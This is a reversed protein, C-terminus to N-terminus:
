SCVIKNKRLIVAEVGNSEQREDDGDGDAEMDGDGGRKDGERELHCSVYM